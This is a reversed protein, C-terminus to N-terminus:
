QNAGRSEIGADPHANACTSLTSYEALCATGQVKGNVCALHGASLCRMEARWEESCPGFSEVVRDCSAVCQEHPTPSSCPLMAQAACYDSCETPVDTPGSPSGASGGAGASDSGCAM